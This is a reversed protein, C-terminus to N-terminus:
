TCGKMRLRHFYRGNKEISGVMFVFECRGLQMLHMVFSSWQLREMSFSFGDFIMMPRLGLWVLKYGWIEKEDVENTYVGTLSLGGM